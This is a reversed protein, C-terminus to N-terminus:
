EVPPPDVSPPDVTPPPQEVAPPPDVSPADVAPPPGVAPSNVLPLNGTPPPDVAPPNVPPLNAAPPPDVAPRPLAAVPQTVATQTAPYRPGKKALVNLANTIQTVACGMQQAIERKTKYPVKFNGKCLRVLTAENEAACWREEHLQLKECSKEVAEASKRQLNIFPALEQRLQLRRGGMSTVRSVEYQNPTVYPEPVLFKFMKQIQTLKQGDYMKPVIRSSSAHLAALAANVAITAVEGPAYKAYGSDWFGGYFSHEHMLAQHVSQRVPRAETVVQPLFSSHSGVGFQPTKGQMWGPFMRTASRLTLKACVAEVAQVLYYTSHKNGGPFGEENEGFAQTVSQPPGLDASFHGDDGVFRFHRYSM